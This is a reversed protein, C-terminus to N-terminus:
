PAGCSDAQLPEFIPSINLMAHRWECDQPIIGMNADNPPIPHMSHKAVPKPMLAIAHVSVASQRLM